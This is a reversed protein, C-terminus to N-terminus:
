PRVKARQRSERWNQVLREYHTSMECMLGHVVAAPPEKYTGVVRQPAGFTQYRSLKNEWGHPWVYTTLALRAAARGLEWREDFTMDEPPRPWGWEVLRALVREILREQARVHADYRM